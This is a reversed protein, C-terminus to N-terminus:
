TSSVVEMCRRIAAQRADAPTHSKSSIMMAIAEPGIREAFAVAEDANMPTVDYYNHCIDSVTPMRHADAGAAEEVFVGYLIFESIHRQSNFAELWSQATVGEIHKQLARVTAPSWFAIPGIYDPLPPAPAPPLGLMERAIRHWIVHRKMGATVGGAVRYLSVQGDTVFRRPEVPRVLIADSDILLVVDADSQGAAAIKSTQQMVWGRLPPWPRRINVYLDTLPARVYRPPLLESRDYVRCRPGEYEAAFRARDRAPVYIHHVTGPPTFALVSRHCDAFVEADGRFTPTIVALEPM